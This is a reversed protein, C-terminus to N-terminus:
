KNGGSIGELSHTIERKMTELAEEPSMELTCGAAKVHGGGGFKAAIENVRGASKARLSVKIRGDSKEKLVAAIEVGKIDRLMDIVTEGHEDSAGAGDLMDRSVRTIAGKGGAFIEMEDLAAAKVKLQRLDVNEYLEVMVRNRDIGAELLEAAMRHTKPTTNSHRFNGTDTSIAVFLAEAAPRSMEAGMERIIDYILEGTAAAKEDIYYYDGFGGTALHHDVTLRVKGSNYANLRGPIRSEESCDVCLCIDPNEERLNETVCCDGAIFSIYDAPKEGVYVSARKGENRLTTCLAVCSGLADGDANEHPFLLISEADQLMKGIEKLSINNIM